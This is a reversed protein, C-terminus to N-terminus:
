SIFNNVVEHVYLVSLAWIYYSTDRLITYRTELYLCLSWNNVMTYFRTNTRMDFKTCKKNYVFAM